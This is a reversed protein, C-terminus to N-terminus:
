DVGLKYRQAFDLGIILPQNLIACIVFNHKFSHEEINMIWHTIGIQGLTIYFEKSILEYKLGLILFCYANPLLELIM